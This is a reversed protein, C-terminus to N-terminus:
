TKSVAVVEVPVTEAPPEATLKVVPAAVTAGVNVGEAIVPLTVALLEGFMVADAIVCTANFVPFRLVETNM